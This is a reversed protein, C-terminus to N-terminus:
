TVVLNLEDNEILDRLVNKGLDDMKSYRKAIEVIKKNLSGILTRHILFRYQSRPSSGAGALWDCLEDDIDPVHHPEFDLYGRKRLSTVSDQGSMEEGRERMDLYEGNNDAYGVIKSSAFAYYDAKPQGHVVWVRVQSSHLRGDDCYDLYDNALRHVRKDVDEFTMEGLPDKGYKFKFTNRM